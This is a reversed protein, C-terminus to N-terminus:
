KRSRHRTTVIGFPADTATVLNAYMSLHPVSAPSASRDVWFGFACELSGPQNDIPVFSHFKQAVGIPEAGVKNEQQQDIEAQIEQPFILLARDDGNEHQDVARHV